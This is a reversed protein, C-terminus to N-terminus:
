VPDMIEDKLREYNERFDFEKCRGRECRACQCCEAIVHCHLHIDVRISVIRISLIRYAGLRTARAM